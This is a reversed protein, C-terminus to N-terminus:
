SGGQMMDERVLEPASSHMYTTGSLRQVSGRFCLSYNGDQSRFLELYFLFQIELLNPSSPSPNCAGSPVSPRETRAKRKTTITIHKPYRQAISKMCCILQTLYQSVKQTNEYQLILDHFLHIWSEARRKVFLLSTV